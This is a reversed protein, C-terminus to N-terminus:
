ACRLEYVPETREGVKVRTCEAAATDLFAQVFVTVHGARGSYDRNSFQPYDTSTWNDVGADMMKELMDPLLGSRFSPLEVVSVSITVRPGGSYFSLSVSPSAGLPVAAWIASILRSVSKDRQLLRAKRANARQMAVAQRIAVSTSQAPM